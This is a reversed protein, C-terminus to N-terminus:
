LLTSLGLFTNLVCDPKKTPKLLSAQRVKRWQLVPQAVIGASVSDTHRILLPMTWSGTRNDGVGGILSAMRTRM